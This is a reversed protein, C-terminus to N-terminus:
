RMTTMMRMEKESTDTLMTQNLWRITQKSLPISITQIQQSLSSWRLLGGADVICLLSMFFHWLMGPKTRMWWCLVCQITSRGGSFLIWMEVDRQHMILARSIGRLSTHQHPSPILSSSLNICDTILLQKYESWIINRHYHERSWGVNRDISRIVWIIRWAPM